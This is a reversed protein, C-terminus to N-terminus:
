RRGLPNLSSSWGPRSPADRRDSRRTLDTPHYPTNTQGGSTERALAVALTNLEGVLDGPGASELARRCTSNTNTIIVDAGARIYDEHVQPVVEPDTKLAAGIQLMSDM